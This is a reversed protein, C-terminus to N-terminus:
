SLQGSRCRGRSQGAAPGRCVGKRNHLPSPNNELAQGAEGNIREQFRTATREKGFLNELMEEKDRKGGARISRVEEM